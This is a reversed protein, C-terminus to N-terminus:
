RPERPNAGLFVGLRDGNLEARIRRSIAEFVLRTREEAASLALPFLPGRGPHDLNMRTHSDPPLLRELIPVLAPFLALAEWPLYVYAARLGGAEMIEPDVPDVPLGGAPEFDPHAELWLAAYNTHAYYDQVAHTIRGFAQQAQLPKDAALAALIAAEQEEMYIFAQEFANGDFHYKGVLLKLLADQGLNAKVVADLAPKSFRGDLAARTMQEHYRLIM